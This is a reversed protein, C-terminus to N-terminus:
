QLLLLMREASTTFSYGCETLSTVMHNTLDHDAFDLRKIAHTLAYSKYNPVTHSVGDWSDLVFGMTRGSAYLSLIAQISIFFAPMNFIEFMIQIMKEHNVKPNLPAETLLVPHEEPTVRLKNYFTHHWIKEMDDWNTIIGHEVPVELQPNQV